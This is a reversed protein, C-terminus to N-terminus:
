KPCGGEKELLVEEPAAPRPGRSEQFLQVMHTTLTLVKAHVDPPVALLLASLQALPSDEDLPLLAAPPVQLVQAIQVLRAVSMTRSGDIWANVASRHM